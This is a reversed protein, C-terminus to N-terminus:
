LENLVEQIKKCATQIEEETIILPPSLRVSTGTFLFFFTILGKKYAIEVFKRCKRDDGLEIALMLGVGRIEKVLPHELGKRFLKEKNPISDIISSDRVLKQLTSLAAACSVPHGGFTTIHGLKPNDKLADMNEKSSIFAGIPMGGGMGKAICLIDPTVSYTDLAFLKGTRGFCTQIEDFILLAGAEDCSKKLKQLWNNRPTIFGTAGQVPEVVVAATNKTINQLSKESNYEIQHCHPLLPRYKAKYVETGMLSLAGQSSGHYSNKCSLFETRGTLRKALKMAGEISECGSNVLYTCNLSAPLNDALLKALQNQPSQVYEGYVMVHMYQEVQTKVAAVLTPHSHGLTNASVGAVLDMYKNGHIDIIYMGKAEKVELAKPHPTIQAQHKLFLEKSM